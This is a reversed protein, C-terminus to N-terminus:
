NYIENGVQTLYDDIFDFGLTPQDEICGLNLHCIGTECAKSRKKMVAMTNSIDEFSFVRTRNSPLTILVSSIAMLPFSRMKGYRDKAKIYGKELTERDYFSEVDKKFTYVIDLVLGLIHETMEDKIGMFFDDGGIHGTFYNPMSAKRKLIQAFLHLARDGQRFGYRDNYAKFDNFDFYILSYQTDLTQLSNSIYEHILTNGPLRTLPNLDRAIALNKDNLVKLLSQASLFGLYEQNETIIIGEINENLSYIELVKEIPTRIEAIPFYTIFDELSQNRSVKELLDRGYRSYAYDKFISERIIGIPEGTQNIIPLLGEKQTRFMEFANVVRETNLAPKLSELESLILKRDNEKITRRDQTGLRHILDYNSKLESIDIVPRQVLYGQVLDCGIDRCSFYEKETEVGEAVVLCGMMHALNVIMTVFLRKKNDTSVDRIFFRDIKILNPETDYLKQLGSFGIGYDDIAIKIKRTRFIEQNKRLTKIDPLDNKESIEFCINEWSLDNKELITQTEITFDSESHFLRSDLNYFLKTKRNAPLSSFKTIAKEQLALEIEHLCGDLYLYDFFADITKFGIKDTYRLLAEHGYCIGTHINVIPQFAYDLVTIANELDIRNEPKINATNV